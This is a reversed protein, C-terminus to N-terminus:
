GIIYKNKEFFTGMEGSFNIDIEVDMDRENQENPKMRFVGSIIEDKRATIFHELFFHTQKWHTYPAFPSTSFGVYTHCHTFEIEFFAVIANVYNDTKMKLNFKAEFPIEDKTFTQLDIDRLMNSATVVREKSITAVLARDRWSKGVSSMDIGYVNNWWNVKKEQYDLHEIASVHFTLRDPFMLGGEALWKDRAFLVSALTFEYFLCYGMWESVIIDVKDVPLTLDEVKSRIATIKDDFGNETIIKKTHKIIAAYDVCYVHKAGSQAAFFSM